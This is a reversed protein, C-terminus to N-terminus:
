TGLLILFIKKFVMILNIFQLLLQKTAQDGYLLGDFLVALQNEAFALILKTLVM